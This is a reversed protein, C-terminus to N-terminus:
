EFQISCEGFQLRAGKYYTCKLVHPSVGIKADLNHKHGAKQKGSLTKDFVTMAMQLGRVQHLPYNITKSTFGAGGGLWVTKSDSKVVNQFKSLFFQYNCDAFLEVAKKLDEVTHKCKTRDITITFTIETGPVICERLIPLRKETDDRHVDVKQFLGLRDIPLENSDSVILGSMCDNVIKGILDHREPAAGALM